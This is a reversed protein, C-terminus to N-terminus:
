VVYAPGAGIEAPAKGVTRRKAGSQLRYVYVYGTELNLATLETILRECMGRSMRCEFVSKQVRFGYGLLLKEVRQRERDESIDYAVAYDGARRV